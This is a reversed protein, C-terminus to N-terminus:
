LEKELNLIYRAPVHTKVMAEAQHFKFDPDTQRVRTKRTADFHISKLMELDDGHRHASDVANM